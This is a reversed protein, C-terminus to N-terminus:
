SVPEILAENWIRCMAQHQRYHDLRQEETMTDSARYLLTLMRNGADILPRRAARQEPTLKLAIPRDSVTDM